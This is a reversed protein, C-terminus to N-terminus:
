LARTSFRVLLSDRCSTSLSVKEISQNFYTGLNFSQLGTPLSVTEINQNLSMGFTISRLSTCLSVKEISQNFDQCVNHSRLGTPLNVKVVCQSFDQGSSISQLGISRNVKKTSQNFDWGSTLSLLGTLLSEENGSRFNFPEGSTLSLCNSCRRALAGHRRPLAGSIRKSCDDATAPMSNSPIDGVCFVRGGEAVQWACVLNGETFYINRLNLAVIVMGLNFRFGFDLTPCLPPVCAGWGEM